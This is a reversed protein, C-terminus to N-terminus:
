ITTMPAPGEPAMAAAMSAPSDAIVLARLGAPRRVAYEAGLMGGWSQGLLHYAPLNLHQVLNTFEDVFLQPTWFGAPADPLHTSNGCGLQDYLIVTRGTQALEAINRLYNHAMGPGGHLVILPLMGEVPNAPETIHAWTSHEGFPVTMERTKPM